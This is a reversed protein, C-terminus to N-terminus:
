ILWLLIIFVFPFIDAIIFRKKWENLSICRGVDNSFYEAVACIMFGITFLFACFIVVWFIIAVM